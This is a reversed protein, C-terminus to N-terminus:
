SAWYEVTPFVSLNFVPLPSALYADVIHTSDLMISFWASRTQAPLLPGATCTQRPHSAAKCLRFLLPLSGDLSGSYVLLYKNVPFCHGGYNPCLSKLTPSRPDETCKMIPFMCYSTFSVKIVWVAFMRTIDPSIALHDPRSTGDFLSGSEVFDQTQQISSRVVRHGLIFHM